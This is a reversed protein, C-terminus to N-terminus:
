YIKIDLVRRQCKRILVVVLSVAHEALRLWLIGSDHYYSRIEGAVTKNESSINSVKTM